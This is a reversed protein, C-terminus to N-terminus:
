TECSSAQTWHLSWHSQGQGQKKDRLENVLTVQGLLVQGGVVSPGSGWLTGGDGDVPDWVGGENRYPM